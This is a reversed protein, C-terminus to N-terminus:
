APPSGSGSSSSATGRAQRSGFFALCVARARASTVLKGTRSLGLAIAQKTDGVADYEERIRTPM